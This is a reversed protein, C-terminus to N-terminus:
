VGPGPPTCFALQLFTPRLHCLKFTPRVFQIYAKLLWHLHHPHLKFRSLLASPHFSHLHLLLSPLVASLSSWMRTLVVEGPRRAEVNSLITLKQGGWAVGISPSVSVWLLKSTTIMAGSPILICKCTIPCIGRKRHSVFSYISKSVIPLLISHWRILRPSLCLLLKSIM